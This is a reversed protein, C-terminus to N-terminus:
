RPNYQHTLFMKRIYDPSDALAALSSLLWCDGLAGQSIDEAEITKLALQQTRLFCQHFITSCFGRKKGDDELGTSFLQMRKNPDTSGTEVESMRIWTIDSKNTKLPGLSDDNPPFTKDTHMFSQVCCQCCCLFLYTITGAIFPLIYAILYKAVLVIPTIVINLLFIFFITFCGSKPPPVLLGFRSRKTFAICINSCVAGM